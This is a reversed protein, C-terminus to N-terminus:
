MSRSFRRCDRLEAWVVVSSLPGIGYHAAALAKAHRSTALSTSSDAVLQCPEAARAEVQARRKSFHEVLGAPVGVVEAGGNADVTGWAVGLRTRMEARLGAKYVLGAAKQVEFLERGDLALWASDTIARVKASVLVHTHLQPALDTLAGPAPSSRSVRPGPRGPRSTPLDTTPTGM